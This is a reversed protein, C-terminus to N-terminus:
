SSIRKTDRRGDAIAKEKLKRADEQDLSSLAYKKRLPVKDSDVHADNISTVVITRDGTDLASIVKCYYWGCSGEVTFLKARSDNSNLVSGYSMQQFTFGAAEARSFKDVDVGSQSGMIAVLQEQGVSLMTALFHGSRLIIDHSFNGKSLALVLRPYTQSLTGPIVWTAIMMSSECRGTVACDVCSIAWIEHNTLSFPGISM